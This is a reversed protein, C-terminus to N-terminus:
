SFMIIDLIHDEVRVSNGFDDTIYFDEDFEYVGLPYRNLYFAPM